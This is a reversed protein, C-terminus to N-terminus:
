DTLNAPSLLLEASKKVAAFEKMTRDAHCILWFAAQPAAAVEKGGFIIGIAQRAFMDQHGSYDDWSKDYTRFKGRLADLLEKDSSEWGWVFSAHYQRYLNDMLAQKRGKFLWEFIWFNMVLIEHFLDSKPLDRFPSDARRHEVEVFRAASKVCLDHLVVGLEALRNDPPFRCLASMQAKTLGKEPVFFTKIQSLLDM